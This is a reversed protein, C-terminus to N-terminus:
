PASSRRTRVSSRGTFSSRWSATPNSRARAPKSSGGTPVSGDGAAFVAEPLEEALEPRDAQLGVAVYSGPNAVVLDLGAPHRRAPRRARRQRPRGSRPPLREGQGTRVASGRTDTAWIRAHPARSAIAVAVAGSGTGVDAVLAARGAIREVAAEVLAETTPRPTMVQGPETLLPARLVAGRDSCPRTEASSHASARTTERCALCGDLPGQSRPTGERHRRRRCRARRVLGPKTPKSRAALRGTYGPGLLRGLAQKLEPRENM